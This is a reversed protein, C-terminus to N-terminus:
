KIQAPRGLRKPLMDLWLHVEAPSNEFGVAEDLRHQLFAEAASAIEPLESGTLLQLLPTLAATSVRATALSAKNPSQHSRSAELLGLIGHQIVPPQSLIDQLM